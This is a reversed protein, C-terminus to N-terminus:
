SLVPKVQNWNDEEATSCRWTADTTLGTSTSLLIGGVVGQDLCSVALVSPEQALSVTKTVRWDTNRAVLEGDAYLEM